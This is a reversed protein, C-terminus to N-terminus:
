EVEPAEPLPTVLTLEREGVACELDITPCISLYPCYGCPFRLDRASGPDFERNVMVGLAKAAGIEIMRTEALAYAEADYEIFLRFVTPEIINKNRKALSRDHPHVTVMCLKLGLWHMYCQMQYYMDPDVYKLEKIGYWVDLLMRYAYDGRVKSDWLVRETGFDLGTLVGDPHGTGYENEQMEPIILTYGMRQLIGGSVAQGAFGMWPAWLGGGDTSDTVEVDEMISLLQKRACSACGSARPKGTHGTEVTFTYVNTEREMLAMASTFRQAFEVDTYLDALSLTM